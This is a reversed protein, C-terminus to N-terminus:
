SGAKYEQAESVLPTRLIGVGLGYVLTHRNIM